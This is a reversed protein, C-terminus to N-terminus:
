GLRLRQLDIRVTAYQWARSLAPNLVTLVSLPILADTEVRESPRPMCPPSPRPRPPVDCSILFAALWIVRLWLAGNTANGCGGGCM